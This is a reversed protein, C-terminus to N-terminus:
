VLHIGPSSRELAERVAAVAVASAEAGAVVWEFGVASEVALEVGASKAPGVVEERAVKDVVVLGAIVLAVADEPVM